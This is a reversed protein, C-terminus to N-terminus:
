SNLAMHKAKKVILKKNFLSTGRDGKLSDCVVNVDGLFICKLVVSCKIKLLNRSARPIM